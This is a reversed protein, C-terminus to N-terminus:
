DSDDDCIAPRAQNDKVTKVAAAVLRAVQIIARGTEVLDEIQGCVQVGYRCWNVFHECNNTILNYEPYTEPHDKARIARHIIESAEFPTEGNRPLNNVRVSNGDKLKSELYEATVGGLSGVNMDTSYASVSLISTSSINLGPPGSLQIVWNGYKDDLETCGVYIAWHCYSREPHSFELADGPELEDNLVELDNITYWKSILSSQEAGM